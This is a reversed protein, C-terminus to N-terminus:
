LIITQGIDNNVTNVTQESKKRTTLYFQNRLWKVCMVNVNVHLFVKERIKERIQKLYRRCSKICIILGIRNKWQM